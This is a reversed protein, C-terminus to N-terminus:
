HKVILLIGKKLMKQDVTVKWKKKLKNVIKVYWGIGKVTLHLNKIKKYEPYHKQLNLLPKLNKEAHTCPKHCAYKKCVRISEEIATLVDAEKLHELVDTSIVLDFSNSPFPLKCISGQTTKLGRANAKDTAIQSIELGEAYIKKNKLYHIANGISSGCDLVNKYLIHKDLIDIVPITHSTKESRHYGVSYLKNYLDEYFLKNSTKVKAKNLKKGKNLKKTQM